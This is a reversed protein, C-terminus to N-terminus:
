SANTKDGLTHQVKAKLKKDKISKSLIRFSSMIPAPVGTTGSIAVDMLGALVTATNSSNVAGPPATLVDKAVENITRLQEAGKKGFLYDLKGTKDLQVIVKDLASASVVPNGAQDRASNKTMQEKIHNLVGSQIEKWAQAGAGSKGGTKTQLLMRVHRMQDLSTSPDLAVKRLVDELAIARDDTGHKNNLLRDVLGANEYDQAYRARAKRAQKYKDGGLGETSADISRKLDGAFKINTPDNGAVKNIFKRLQETNALSMGGKKLVLNGDPDEIAGGLRILEKRAAVLVPATSEASRSESMVKVLDNLNVPDEMEGAKEADKYLTRIKTKDGTARKRLSEDVVEGIGRLNSGGTNSGTEDIFADMNQQLQLNQEAFRERLPAGEEPLKATEREFRQQEFTRTKQGETLKIPIPLEEALAQRAVPQAVQQAGATSGQDPVPPTLKNQITEIVPKVTEVMRTSQAKAIPAATRTAMAIPQLDGLMPAIAALPESVEGLTQLMGQGTETNPAYTLAEAGGVASKEIRDAAEQSGFKGALIEDALGKLTGGIMGMMGSTAGTAVTLAVEGLGVTQQGIDPEPPAMVTGEVESPGFSSEIQEVTVGNESTKSRERSIVAALKRASDSDGAKHAAVMAQELQALTAM